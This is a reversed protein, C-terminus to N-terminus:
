RGSLSKLYWAIHRWRLRHLRSLVLRWDIKSRQVRRHGREIEDRQRWASDEPHQFADCLRRFFAEEEAAEGPRPLRPVGSEQMLAPFAEVRVQERDLTCRLILEKAMLERPFAMGLDTLDTQARWKEYFAPELLPMIFNGLSYVIPVGHYWEMGQITHPHSGIILDAGAEAARRCGEVTAKMPYSTAEIGEHFYIVVRDCHERAQGILRRAAPSDMAVCGPRRRTPVQVGAFGVFGIRLGKRELVCLRTAQDWRGAGFWAIGAADLARVTADLGEEGFDLIHNNALSVVDVGLWRLAEVARTPAFHPLDGSGQRGPEITDCLISELNALVIDARLLDRVAPDMRQVLGLPDAALPGTFALDGVAALTVGEQPAAGPATMDQQMETPM